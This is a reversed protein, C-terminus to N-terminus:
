AWCGTEAWPDVLPHTKQPRHGAWWCALALRNWRGVVDLKARVSSLHTCVTAAEICLRLGIEKDCLGDLLLDLIQIERATLQRPPDGRLHEIATM